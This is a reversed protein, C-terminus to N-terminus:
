ADPAEDPAADADSPTEPTTSPARGGRGAGSSAAGPYRLDGQEDDHITISYLRPTISGGRAPDTMAIEITADQTGNAFRLTYPYPIVPNGFPPPQQGAARENFSAGIFAGYRSEIASIFAAVEDDGAAAGQGYFESRFRAADGSVAAKLALEPGNQIYAFIEKGKDVAWVTGLGWAALGLVGLILGTVAFGRGRLMPNRSVAVMGGVGFLVALLSPIFPCCGLIACVFSTIAMGSTRAPAAMGGAASLDQHTYPDPYQTM